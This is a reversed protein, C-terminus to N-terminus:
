DEKAYGWVEGTSVKIFLCHTFAGVDIYDSPLEQYDENNIATDIIFIDDVQMEYGTAFRNNNGLFIYSEGLFDLETTNTDISKITTGNIRIYINGDLARTIDYYNWNTLTIVSPIEASVVNDKDLQLIFKNSYVTDAIRGVSAKAWFCISFLNSFKFNFETKDSYIFSNQRFLGSSNTADHKTFVPKNPLIGVNVWEINSNLIDTPTNPKSFRTCLKAM